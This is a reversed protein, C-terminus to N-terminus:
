INKKQEKLEAIQKKFLEIKELKDSNDSSASPRSSNIKIETKLLKMEDSQKIVKKMSEIDKIQEKNSNVNDKKKSLKSTFFKIARQIFEKIKTFLRKLTEIIKSIAGESVVEYNLSNFIAADQEILFKQNEYIKFLM